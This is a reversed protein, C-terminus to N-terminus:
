GPFQKITKFHLAFRNVYHFGCFLENKSIYLSKKEVSLFYYQPAITSQVTQNQKIKLSLFSIHKFCTQHIYNALNLKSGHMQEFPAQALFCCWEEQVLEINEIYKEGHSSYLLNLYCGILKTEYNFDQFINKEALHFVLTM